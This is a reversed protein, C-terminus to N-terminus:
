KKQELWADGCGCAGRGPWWWSGEKEEKKLAASVACGSLGESGKDAVHWALTHIHTHTHEQVTKSPRATCNATFPTPYLKEKLKCMEEQHTAQLAFILWRAWLGCLTSPRCCEPISPM